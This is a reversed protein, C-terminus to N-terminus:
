LSFMKDPMLTHLAIGEPLMLLCQQLIGPAIHEHLICHKAVSCAVGPSAQRLWSLQMIVVVHLHTPIQGKCNFCIYTFAETVHIPFNLTLCDSEGRM